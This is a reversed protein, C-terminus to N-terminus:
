KLQAVKDVQLSGDDLKSGDLQVHEGAHAKVADQNKINYVKGGSDDILVVPQGMKVCKKACDAHDPGSGKAGCMADGLWGKMSVASGKSDAAFAVVGILLACVLVFLLKRM